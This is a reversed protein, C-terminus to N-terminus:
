KLNRVYHFLYQQAIGEVGNVCKPLGNPYYEEMVRKIWVDVPFAETRYMGYLLACEAVKPGVGKITMLSQRATDMDSKSIIDLNLEGSALKQAADILYKARFGARLFSLSEVTEDALQNYTPFGQYKESLRSIIGKIRPINNNQSIIFSCLAEWKDQKLLRIGPAFRCAKNLTEDQSFQKKLAGYDTNFDFYDVWINLFDEKSTNHFIFTDTNLSVNDCVKDQDSNKTIDNTGSLSSLKTIDNSSDSICSM